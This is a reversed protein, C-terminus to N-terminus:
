KSNTLLSYHNHLYKSLGRSGGLLTEPYPKLPELGVPVAGKVKGFFCGLIWLDSGQSLGLGRFSQSPGSTQYGLGYVEVELCWHWCGYFLFSPPVKFAVLILGSIFSPSSIRDDWIAGGLIAPLHGQLRGTDLLTMPKLFDLFSILM